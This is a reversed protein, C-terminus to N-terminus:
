RRAYVERHYCPNERSRAIFRVRYLFKRHVQKNVKFHDNNKDNFKVQNQIARQMVQHIIDDYNEENAGTIIMDDQIM